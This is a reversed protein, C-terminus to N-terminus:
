NIFYSCAEQKLGQERSDVTNFLCAVFLNKSFPLIKVLFNAATVQINKKITQM